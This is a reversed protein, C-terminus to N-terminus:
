RTRLDEARLLSLLATKNFSKLEETLGKREVIKWTPRAFSEAKDVIKYSRVQTNFELAGNTGIVWLGFPAIKGIFQKGKYFAGIDLKVPRLGFRDMLEEYLEFKVNPSIRLEYETGNLWQGIEQYLSHIRHEWDKVRREVYTKDVNTNLEIFSMEIRKHLFVFYVTSVYLKERFGRSEISYFLYLPEYV